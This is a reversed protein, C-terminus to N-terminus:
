WCLTPRADAWLDVSSGAFGATFADARLVARGARVEPQPVLARAIAVRQAAGPCNARCANAKDTLGVRALARSRRAVFM